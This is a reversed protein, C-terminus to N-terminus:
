ENFELEVGLEKSKATLDNKLGEFFEEALKYNLAEIVVLFKGSGLYSIDVKTKKPKSFSTLLKKIRTLGDSATSSVTLERKIEVSLQKLLSQFSDRILPKVKSPLDVNDLFKLGKSRLAEHASLLSGYEDIFLNIVKDTLKKSGAEQCAHEVLHYFRNRVRLEDLKRKREGSKVRKLSVDVLNDKVYLVKCVVKEGVSLHNKINKVGRLAVESIHIMGNAGEYNDIEVFASHPELRKVTCLVLEGKLPLGKKKFLTM